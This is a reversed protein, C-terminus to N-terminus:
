TIMTDSSSDTPAKRASRAARRLRTPVRHIHTVAMTADNSNGVTIDDTVKSNGFTSSARTALLITASRWVVVSVSEGAMHNVPSGSGRLQRTASSLM